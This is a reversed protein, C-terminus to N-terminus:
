RVQARNVQELSQGITGRVGALISEVDVKPGFMAFDSASIHGPLDMSSQQAQQAAALRLNAAMAANAKMNGDVSTQLGVGAMCQPGLFLSDIDSILASSEMKVPIMGDTKIPIM